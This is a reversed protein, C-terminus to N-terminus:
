FFKSGIAETERPLNGRLAPDTQCPTASRPPLAAVGPGPGPGPGPGARSREVLAILAGIGVLVLAAISLVRKFSYVTAVLADAYTGTAWGDSPRVAPSVERLVTFLESLRELSAREEQCVSCARIHEELPSAEEPLLEGDLWASVKETHPCSLNM